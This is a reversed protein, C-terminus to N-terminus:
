RTETLAPVWRVDRGDRVGWIEGSETKRPFIRYNSGSALDLLGVGYINTFRWNFAFLFTSHPYQYLIMRGDPSWRLQSVFRVRPMRYVRKTGDGDVVVVSRRNPMIYALRGDGFTVQGHGRGTKRARWIIDVDIRDSDTLTIHKMVPGAGVTLRALDFATWRHEEATRPDRALTGNLSRVLLFGRAMGSPLLTRPPFALQTGLVSALPLLLLAIWSRNRRPGRAM